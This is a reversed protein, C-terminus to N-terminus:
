GSVKLVCHPPQPPEMAAPSAQLDFAYIQMQRNVLECIAFDFHNVLDFSEEFQMQRTVLSFNISALGM